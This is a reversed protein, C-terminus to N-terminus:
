SFHVRLKEENICAFSLIINVKRFIHCHRFSTFLMASNCLIKKFATAAIIKQKKSYKSMKNINSTATNFIIYLIDLEFMFVKFTIPLIIQWQFLWYDLILVKIATNISRIRTFSIDRLAVRFTASCNSYSQMLM